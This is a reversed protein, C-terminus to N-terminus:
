RGYRALDLGMSAEDVEERDGAPSEGQVGVLAPAGLLAVSLHHRSM